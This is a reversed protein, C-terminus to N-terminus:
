LFNIGLIYQLIQAIFFAVVVLLLGLLANVLEKNISQLRGPDGLSNMYAYGASVLRYLFFFGALSIAFLLFRTIIDVLLTNYSTFQTSPNGLTTIQALTKPSPTM